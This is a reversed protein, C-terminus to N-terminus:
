GGGLGLFEFTYRKNQLWPKLETMFSNVMYEGIGLCFDITSGVVHM